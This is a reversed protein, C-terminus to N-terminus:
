RTRVPLDAGPKIEYGQERIWEGYPKPKEGNESSERVHEGYQNRLDLTKAGQKAAGSGVVSPSPKEPESGLKPPSFRQFAYFGGAYGRNPVGGSRDPGSKGPLGPWSATKEVFKAM